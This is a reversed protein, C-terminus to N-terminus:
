DIEDEIIEIKKGDMLTIECINVGRSVQGTDSVTTNYYFRLSKFESFKYIVKRWRYFIVFSDDLLGLTQKMFLFRLLLFVDLGLLLLGTILRQKDSDAYFYTGTILLLHLIAVLIIWLTIIKKDAGWYPYMRM